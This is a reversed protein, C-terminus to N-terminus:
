QLREDPVPIKAIGDTEVSGIYLMGEHEIASTTPAYFEGSTDQLNYIVNGELDVGLVYGQLTPAPRLSQPVRFAIGTLLPNPLLNDVTERSKPGSALAIWVTDMGNFTINDPFGPLNEILPEFTGAQEGTLWYRMVRYLSVEAVMVYADDPGLAISNAFYLGDVLLTTEGSAPDYAWLSGYPRHEAVELVYDTKVFKTSAQSFYITGDAAIDLDNLYFFEEGEGAPILTTMNGAPDIMLLGLSADAVILNGDNDFKLGLPEKGTAITEVTEGNVDVRVVRGDHIGAYLMGDAGIAIAEPAHIDPAIITAATLRDNPAYVGEAAPAEPPTWGAPDIPIPALLLYLVGAGLILILVIALKKLM